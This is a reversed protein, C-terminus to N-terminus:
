AKLFERAIDYFLCNREIVEVTGWFNYPWNLFLNVSVNGVLISM